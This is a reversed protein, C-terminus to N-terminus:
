GFRMQELTQGPVNNFDVADSKWFKPKTASPEFFGIGYRWKEPHEPSIDTVHLACLFQRPTEGRAGQEFWVNLIPNSNDRGPNGQRYLFRIRLPQNERKDIAEALNDFFLTTHLSSYHDLNLHGYPKSPCVIGDLVCLDAPVFSFNDVFISDTRLGFPRLNGRFKRLKKLTRYEERTHPRLPQECIEKLCAKAVPDKHQRRRLARKSIKEM